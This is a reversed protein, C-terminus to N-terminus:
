MWDGFQVRDGTATQRRGRQQLPPMPQRRDVRQLKPGIEIV